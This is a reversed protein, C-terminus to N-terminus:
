EKNAVAQPAAVAHRQLAAKGAEIEDITAQPLAKALEAREENEKRLRAQEAADIAAAGVEGPNIEAPNQVMHPASGVDEKKPAEARARQENQARQESQPQSAPAQTNKEEAM